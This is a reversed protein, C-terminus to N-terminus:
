ADYKGDSPMSGSVDDAIAQLYRKCLEPRFQIPVATLMHTMLSGCAAIADLYNANADHIVGCLQSALHEVRAVQESNPFQNAPITTM